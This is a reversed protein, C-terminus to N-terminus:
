TRYHGSGQIKTDDIPSSSNPTSTQSADRRKPQRGKNKKVMLKVLDLQKKDM